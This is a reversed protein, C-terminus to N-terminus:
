RGTIQFKALNRVGNYLMITLAGLRRRIVWAGDECWRDAEHNHQGVPGSAVAQEIGRLGVNCVQIRDSVM